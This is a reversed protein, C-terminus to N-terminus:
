KTNRIESSTWWGTCDDVIQTRWSIYAHFYVEYPIGIKYPNWDATYGLQTAFDAAAKYAGNQSKEVVPHWTSM